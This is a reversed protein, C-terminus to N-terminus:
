SHCILSFANSSGLRWRCRWLCGRSLLWCRVAGKPASIHGPKVREREELRLLTRRSDKSQGVGEGPRAAGSFKCTAPRAARAPTQGFEVVEFCIHIDNGSTANIWFELSRYVRHCHGQANARPQRRQFDLGPERQVCVGNTSQVSERSIRRRTSLLALNEEM